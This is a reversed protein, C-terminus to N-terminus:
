DTFKEHMPCKKKSQEDSNSSSSTCKGCKTKGDDSLYPKSVMKKSICGEVNYGQYRIRHRCIAM